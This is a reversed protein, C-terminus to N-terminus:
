SNPGKLLKGQVKSSLAEYILCHFQICKIVSLQEWSVARFNSSNLHMGQETNECFTFRNVIHFGLLGECDHLLCSKEFLCVNSLDLVKSLDINSNKLFIEKLNFLQRIISIKSVSQSFQFGLKYLLPQLLINVSLVRM